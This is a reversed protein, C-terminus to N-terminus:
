GWAKDPTCKNINIHCSQTGSSCGGVPGNNIGGVGAKYEPPGQNLDRSQSLSNQCTKWPKGWNRCALAPITGCILGRRSVEVVKGFWESIVRENSAM